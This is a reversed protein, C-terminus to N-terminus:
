QGTDACYLWLHQQGPWSPMWCLESGVMRWGSTRTLAAAAGYRQRQAAGGPNFFDRIWLPDQFSGPDAEHTTYMDAERLRKVCM